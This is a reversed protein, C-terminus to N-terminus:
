RPHLSDILRQVAHGIRQPDAPAVALRDPGGPSRTVTMQYRGDPNDCWHLVQSRHVRGFPDRLNAAIQGTRPHAQNLIAAVAAGSREPSTRATPVTVLLGPPASPAPPGLPVTLGPRTGPPHAPLKRVVAAALGHAPIVELLTVGPREPYQAVCIGIAAGTAAVVRAPQEAEPDPLWVSDVWCAPRHLLGLAAELDAEVRGGRLLGLASLEVAVQASLRGREADTHGHVPVQIPAPYIELGGHHPFLAETLVDWQAASLQWRM